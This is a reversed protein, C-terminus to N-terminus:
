KWYPNQTVAGKVNKQAVPWYVGGNDLLASFASNDRLLRNERVQDYWRWGEGMFERRREAFIAKILNAGGAGDYMSVGRIGKIKNLAAIADTTQNMVALAEAQLLYIEELREPVIASSYVALTGASGDGIVKIKSFIPMDGEYNTFYNESYVGSLTDRGFRVDNVDLFINNISDKSVYIDPRQKSILPSALTLSEIHGMGSIGSENYGTSMYLSFIQRTDIRDNFFKDGDTLETIDDILSAGIKDYNDIVFDVYAATEQYKGQWAAIHALVAYAFERNFLTNYYKTYDYGYYNGPFIADDSKGYVFPLVKAAAQMESSAFSLVKEQSTRAVSQFDGDHTTTILPVDGWIRSIYFYTYARIARAQAIDIKNNLETYRKDTLAQASHEIFQNCADIVAYYRRWDLLEQILPYTLNLNGEVIAKLDPRSVATFDGSRLDGFLWYANQDAMATRLLGYLGTLQSGVDDYSDWAGTENSLSTSKIDLQKNCATFGGLILISTLALIWRKKFGVRNNIFIKM